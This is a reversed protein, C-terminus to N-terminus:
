KRPAGSVVDCATGAYRSRASWAMIVTTSDNSAKKIEIAKVTNVNPYRVISTAVAVEEGDRDLLIREVGSMPSPVFAQDEAAVATYEDLNCRLQM